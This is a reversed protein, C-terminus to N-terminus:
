ETVVPLEAGNWGMMGRNLSFANFGAIKLATTTIGATQGSYCVVYIAKNNPLQDFNNGLEKFPINVAGEIHGEEFDDEARIDLVMIAEPNEEVLEHMDEPSVIFNGEAPFYNVIADWIIKEEGELDVAQAEPLDVPDTVLTDEGLELNAWGFNMGGQYSLANFGAMQLAAAAQASTQGSYCQLIVQKDRPIRDLNKGIDAYPINVAGDIHGEEYDDKSRMDIWFIAQPNEEFNSLGEDAAVMHNNDPLNKMLEEGAALLVAEEDLAVEEEEEEEEDPEEPEEVETGEDAPGEEKPACAVVLSFLLILVLFFSLFRKGKFM